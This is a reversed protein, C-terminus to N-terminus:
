TGGGGGEEEETVGGVGVVEEVLRGEMLDEEEKAALSLAGGEGGGWSRGRGVAEAGGLIDPEPPAFLTPIPGAFLTPIPGVLLPKPGALPTPSPGALTPKPGALKRGLPGAHERGDPVTLEIGLPTIPGVLVIGALIGLPPGGTLITITACGPKLTTVLEDGVGEGACIAGRGEGWGGPRVSYESNLSVKVLTLYFHICVVIVLEQPTLFM